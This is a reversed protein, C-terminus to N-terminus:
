QQKGTQGHFAEWNGLILKKNKMCVAHLFFFCNLLKICLENGMM